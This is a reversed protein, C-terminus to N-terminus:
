LSPFSRRPPGQFGQSGQAPPCDRAGDGNSHIRETPQQKAKGAGCEALAQVRQALLVGGTTSVSQSRWDKLEKVKIRRCSKEMM